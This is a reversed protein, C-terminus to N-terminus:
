LASGSYTNKTWGTAMRGYGSIDTRNPTDRNKDSYLYADGTALTGIMVNANSGYCGSIAMSTINQWSGPVVVKSTWKSPTKHPITYEILRGDTTTAVMVDAADNNPLVVTTSYALTKISQWGSASVVAPGSPVAPGAPVSYRNLGGTTTLGYLYAGNTGSIAPITTMNRIVGWTSNVLKKAVSGDDNIGLLWLNGDPAVAYFDKGSTGLADKSGAGKSEKPAFAKPTFGIQGGQDKDTYLQGKGNNSSYHYSIIRQTPSVGWMTVSCSAQGPIGAVNTVTQASDANAAAPVLFTSAGLAAAM